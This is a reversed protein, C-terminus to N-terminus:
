YLQFYHRMSIHCSFTSFRRFIPLILSSLQRLPMHRFDFASFIRRCRRFHRLLFIAALEADAIDISFRRFHLALFKPPSIDAPTIPSLSFYGPLM